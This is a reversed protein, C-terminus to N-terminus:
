QVKQQKGIVFYLIAGLIAIFLVVLTWVLKDMPRKFQNRIIDILAAVILFFPVVWVLIYFFFM